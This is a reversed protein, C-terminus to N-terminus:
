LCLLPVSTKIRAKSRERAACAKLYRKIEKNCAKKRRGEIAVGVAAALDNRITSPTAM